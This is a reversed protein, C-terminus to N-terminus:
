KVGQLVSIHVQSFTDICYMIVVRKLPGSLLDIEALLTANSGIFTMRNSSTEPRFDSVGKGLCFWQSGKLKHHM